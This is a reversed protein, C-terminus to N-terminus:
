LFRKLDEPNAQGQLIDRMLERVLEPPLDLYNELLEFARNWTM